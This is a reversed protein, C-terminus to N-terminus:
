SWDFFLFIEWLSDNKLINVPKEGKKKGGTVVSNTYQYAETLLNYYYIKVNTNM